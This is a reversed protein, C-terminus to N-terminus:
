GTFQLPLAQTQLLLSQLKAWLVRPQDGRDEPSAMMLSAVTFTQSQAKGRLALFLL